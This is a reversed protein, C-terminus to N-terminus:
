PEIVDGRNLLFRPDLAAKCRRVQEAAGEGYCCLFDKRKRKGTGHEGSYVGGLEAAKEVIMDYLEVARELEEKEPLINFHLHCDGLHGFSLYDMGEAAILGNAFDLFERFREPPVACDTMITYTGRRQVVELSNAPLSHRSEMFVARDRDNDLLLVADEDVNCDSEVVFGFWEEAADEIEVGSLPVQLYVAVQDDGRFLREEHDMYRRCNVGFYEVASMGGLEGGLHERLKESFAVADAESPLSFFLDLYDSPRPALALECATVLGFLGESGVVLDVFDMRGDPASYPGGANKITPREYRPVPLETTAGSHRLLFVGNESVFQGRRAECSRGDPFLVRVSEVWDRTAGREGPVFGSANCAITGGVTADARSTPDVPYHLRGATAELVQQRMQELIMGVPATVTRAAEDVSVDPSLMKVTSVVVGGEPTASGTLNSRGASVTYPVGAAFCARFVAACERETAPRALAAAEGPLNSSDSAFGSVIDPDLSLEVSFKEALFAALAGLSEAGGRDAAFADIAETEAGDLPSTLEIVNTPM